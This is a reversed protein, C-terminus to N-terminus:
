IKEINSGWGYDCFLKAKASSSEVPSNLVFFLFLAIFNKDNKLIKKDIWFTLDENNEM